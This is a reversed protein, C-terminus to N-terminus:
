EDDAIQGAGFEEALRGVVTRIVEYEFGRRALFDSLRRRFLEPATVALDALRQGRTRAVALASATSDVDALAADISERDLGHERLEQRLARPGKPRFRERNEVWYRAFEADDLYGQQTLRDLVTEVIAEDGVTRLLYRRVEATSRPRFSLFQVARDYARQVQDAAQLQAIDADSLYQGVRLRAAEIAPLGFAFRGDLYVNVRDPNQKQFRLGTIQGAM